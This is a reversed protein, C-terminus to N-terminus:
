SIKSPSPHENSPFLAFLINRSLKFSFYDGCIEVHPNAKLPSSNKAQHNQPSGVGCWCGEPELPLVFVDQKLKLRAASYRGLQRRPMLCSLGELFWQADSLM